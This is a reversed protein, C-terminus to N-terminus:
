EGDPDQQAEGTCAELVCLGEWWLFAHPHLPLEAALSRRSKLEWGDKGKFLFSTVIEFSRLHSIPFLLKFTAM